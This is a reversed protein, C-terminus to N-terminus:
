SKVLVTFYSTMTISYSSSHIYLYLYIDLQVLYSVHSKVDLLTYLYMTRSLFLYLVHAPSVAIHKCEHGGSSKKIHIGGDLYTLWIRDWIATTNMTTYSQKM